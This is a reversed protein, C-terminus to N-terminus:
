FDFWNGTKGPTKTFEESCKKWLVELEFKSQWLLDPGYLFPPCPAPGYLFPPCPPSYPFMFDKCIFLM